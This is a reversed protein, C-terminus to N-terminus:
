RSGEAAPVAHHSHHTSSGHHTSSCSHSASSSSLSAPSTTQAHASPSELTMTIVATLGAIAVGVAVIAAVLRRSTKPTSTNTNTTM